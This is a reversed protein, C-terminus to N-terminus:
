GLHRGQDPRNCEELPARWRHQMADRDFKATSSAAATYAKARPHATAAIATLVPADEDKSVRVRM